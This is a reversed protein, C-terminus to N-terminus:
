RHLRLKVRLRMIAQGHLQCIRSEKLKMMDGIEKLNKDDYYYRTVIEKEREPLEDIAELLLDSTQQKVIQDHPGDISSDSLVDLLGFPSGDSNEWSDDISVVSLFHVDDLLAFYDELNLDMRVAVEESTPDRGLERELESFTKELRKFKERLSRSLWDQARLEDIITGRIRLEAFTLFQVGRSPDFREAAMILGIVAASMLDDRDLHPPLQSAIKRMIRKAHSLHTVILEDRMVNRSETKQAQETTM